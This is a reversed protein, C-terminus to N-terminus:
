IDEGGGSVVQAHNLTAVLTVGGLTNGVLTPLVYGGFVEGWAARGAFALAFTEVSGAIIHSFNGLGVVYTIIVIVWVRATEAFPLLWVMLAILWGAFVGRLMTTWFDHEMAKAGIEAFAARTPEDFATTRSAVAAVLLAGLLNAVLVVAWLRMVNAFTSADKRQLLSLVPTLTNETYLQQRGLVVILFGVSYGFKAVLPRWPADPLHAQLLGEAIMSFGMSLGAALGSWFLASSPRELESEGESLIAKYVVKGSPASRRDADEQEARRGGGEGGEPRQEEAAREPEETM